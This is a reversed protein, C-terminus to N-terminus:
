LEMLKSLNTLNIPLEGTLNNANLISYDDFSLNLGAWILTLQLLLDNIILFIIM